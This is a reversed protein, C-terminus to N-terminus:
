GIPAGVPDVPPAMSKDCFRHTKRKRLTGSGYTHLAAPATGPKRRHVRMLLPWEVGNALYLCEISLRRPPPPPVQGVPVGQAVYM